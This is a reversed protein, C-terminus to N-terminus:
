VGTEALGWFGPYTMTEMFDGLNFTTPHYGERMFSLVANPGAHVEGNFM